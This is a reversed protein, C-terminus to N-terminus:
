KGGMQQLASGVQAGNLYHEAMHIDRRCLDVGMHGPITKLLHMGFIMRSTSVSVFDWYALSQLVLDCYGFLLYIGPFVETNRPNLVIAGDRRRGSLWFVKKLYSRTSLKSSNMLSM